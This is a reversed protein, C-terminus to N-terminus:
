QVTGAIAWLHIRAVAVKSCPGRQDGRYADDNHTAKM